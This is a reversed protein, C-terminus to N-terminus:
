HNIWTKCVPKVSSSAASPRCIKRSNGTSSFQYSCQKKSFCTGFSNGAFYSLFSGGSISYTQMRIELIACGRKLNFNILHIEAHFDNSCNDACFASEGHLCYYVQRKLFKFLTYSHKYNYSFNFRKKHIFLM